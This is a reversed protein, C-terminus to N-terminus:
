KTVKECCSLCSDGCVAVNDPPPKLPNGISDEIMQHWCGGTLVVMKLLDQLNSCQLNIGSAPPMIQVVNSPSKLKPLYLRQNLYVYDELTLFLNFNDGSKVSRERGSQGM